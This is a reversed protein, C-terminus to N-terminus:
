NQTNSKIGFTYDGDLYVRFSNSRTPKKSIGLVSASNYEKSNTRETTYWDRVLAEACKESNKYYQNVLEGVGDLLRQREEDSRKRIESTINLYGRLMKIKQEDSEQFICQGIWAGIHSGVRGSSEQLLLLNKGLFCTLQYLSPGRMESELIHICGKIETLDWVTYGYKDKLNLNVDKNKRLMEIMEYNGNRIAWMLSTNGDEDQANLNTRTRIYVYRGLNKHLAKSNNSRLVMDEITKIDIGLFKKVTELDNEKVAKLLRNDFEPLSQKTEKTVEREWLPRSFSKNKKVLESFVGSKYVDDRRNESFNQMGLASSSVIMLGLILYSKKMKQGKM